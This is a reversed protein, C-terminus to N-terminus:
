GFVGDIRRGSEPTLSTAPSEMSADTGGAMLPCVASHEWIDVSMTM